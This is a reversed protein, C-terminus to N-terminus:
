NLTQYGLKRILSFYLLGEEKSLQHGLRVKHNLGNCMIVEYETQSPYRGERFRMLYQSTKIDEGRVAETM